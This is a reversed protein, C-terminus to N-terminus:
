LFPVLSFFITMAIGFIVPVTFDKQSDSLNLIGVFLFTFLAGFVITSIKCRFVSWFSGWRLRDVIKLM